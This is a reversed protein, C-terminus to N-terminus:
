WIFDGPGFHPLGFNLTFQPMSLHTHKLNTM